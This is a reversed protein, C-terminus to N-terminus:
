GADRAAGSLRTYTLAFDHRWAGDAAGTSWRGRITEGGPSLEAEWRQAFDLPSFDPATREMTWVRDDFRMTYIRVVGRSDFYHQQWHGAADPAIIAIGDPASPHPVQWRQIVFREGPGWGFTTRAGSDGAPGQRGDPFVADMRWTGILPALAAIAASPASPASPARPNM